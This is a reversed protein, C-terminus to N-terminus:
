RKGQSKAPDAPSEPIIDLNGVLVQETGDFTPWDVTNALPPNKPDGPVYKRLIETHTDDSPGIIVATRVPKGDIQLYVVYDQGGPVPHRELSRDLGAQPRDRHHGDRVLRPPPTRRHQLHRDRSSAHADLPQALLRLPRGQGRPDRGPDGPLPHPGHGSRSRLLVGARPRRRLCPGPRDARPHVAAPRQRRRRTRPLRGSQREAPHDRGSLPGQDPRLRGPGPGHARQGAGRILASRAADVDSRARDLDASAQDRASKMESVMANAQDRAASAEEFQRYTEDRVQVDLVRQTVLQELRKYESEWRTYSAQARKVGAQASEIRATATELKAKAARLASEAVEIQVEASSVEATRQALQAVLDPIWMDILVDGTKVRDGINYRYKQVYGSIRSYIPTVEFAQLTGPQVVMWRIDRKEPQVVRIGATKGAENKTASGNLGPSRDSHRCGAALLLSLAVLTVVPGQRRFRLTLASILRTTCPLGKRFFGGQGGRRLPPVISIASGSDKGRRVFPPNPPTRQPSVERTRWGVTPRELLSDPFRKLGRIPATARLWPRSGRSRIVNSFAGLAGGWGRADGPTPAPRQPSLAIPHEIWPSVGRAVHQRGEPAKRVAELEIGPTPM